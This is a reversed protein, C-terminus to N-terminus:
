FWDIFLLWFLHAVFILILSCVKFGRYVLDKKHLEAFVWWVSEMFNLDMTKYGNEFDIWRGTRRVVQEWEKVYRTVIGRCEENYKGIGMELM